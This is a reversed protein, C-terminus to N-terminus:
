NKPVEELINRDKNWKWLQGQITIRQYGVKTQNGKAREERARKRIELQIRMEERTLDNNIYIPDQGRLRLKNKNQMIKNKEDKSATKILCMKNGLKFAEDIKVEINLEKCMFATMVEKLVGPDSTDIELGQVIVNKAKQEKELYEVRNKTIRLEEKIEENEKQIERNTQNTEELKKRLERIDKRYDKQEARIEKIEATINQMMQILTDLKGEENQKHKIPTRQTRKSKNFIECGDDKRGRKRGDESTGEDSDFEM